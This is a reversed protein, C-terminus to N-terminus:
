FRPAGPRRTRANQVMVFLALAGLVWAVALVAVVWRGVGAVSSAVDVNSATTALDTASGDMPVKWTLVGEVPLGTSADVKGPLTADFTVGVADGLDIGLDQIDAEYPAGGLLQIAAQDAFAQLGGVVELRGSLTWTSNTDTGTRSLAVAHLPGNAGSVQSLAATAEAPTRFPHRLVVVLGGDDTEDPGTVTWGVKKLDDLRVDAALNPAKDVVDKDATVTVTVTGSGNPEVRLSVTTDVRCAALLVVCSVSAALRLGRRPNM